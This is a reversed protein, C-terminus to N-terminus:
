NSRCIVRLKETLILLIVIGGSNNGRVTAFIDAESFIYMLWSCYPRIFISYVKEARQVALCVNKWLVIVCCKSTSSTVM